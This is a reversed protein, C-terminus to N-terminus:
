VDLPHDLQAIGARVLRDDIGGDRHRQAAGDGALDIGVLHDPEDGAHGLRVLARARAPEARAVEVHGRADRHAPEAVGVRREGLPDGALEPRQDVDRVQVPVLLLDDRGLVDYRRQM